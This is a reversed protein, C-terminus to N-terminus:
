NYFIKMKNKYKLYWCSNQPRVGMLNEMQKQRKIEGKKIEEFRQQKISHGITPKATTTKLTFLL